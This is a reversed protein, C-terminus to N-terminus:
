AKASRPKISRLGKLFRQRTDRASAWLRETSPCVTYLLHFAKKGFDETGDDMEELEERKLENKEIALELAELLTKSILKKPNKMVDMKKGLETRLDFDFVLRRRIALANYIYYLNDFCHQEDIYIIQDNKDTYNPWFCKLMRFISKVDQEDPKVYFSWLPCAMVLRTLPYLASPLLAPDLDTDLQEVEAVKRFNQIFINDSSLPTTLNLGDVKGHYAIYEEILLVNFFIVLAKHIYSGLFIDSSNFSNLREMGYQFRIFIRECLVSPSFCISSQEAYMKKWEMLWQIFLKQKRLNEASLNEASKADDIMDRSISDNESESSNDSDESNDNDADNFFMRRSYFTRENGYYTFRMTRTNRFFINFIDEETAYTLIEVM